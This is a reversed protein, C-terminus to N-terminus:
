LYISGYLASLLCSHLIKDSLLFWSSSPAIFFSFTFVASLMKIEKRPYGRFSILISQMILNFPISKFHFVPISKPQFLCGTEDFVVGTIKEQNQATINLCMVTCFALLLFRPVSLERLIERIKRM